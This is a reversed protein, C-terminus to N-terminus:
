ELDRVISLELQVIYDLEAVEMIKEPYGSVIVISDLANQVNVGKGAIEKIMAPSLRRSCKGIVQLNESKNTKELESIKQKLPTDLKSLPGPNTSSCSFLFVSSFIFVLIANM